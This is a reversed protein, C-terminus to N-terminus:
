RNGRLSKYMELCKDKTITRQADTLQPIVLHTGATLANPNSITKRNARYIYIWCHTNQYYKRALQSLTMDKVVNVEDLIGEVDASVTSRTNAVSSGAVQQRATQTAKHEHEDACDAKLQEFEARNVIRVEARRNPSYAAKSRKGVIKGRGCATIRDADIGYEEILENMVAEARAEGILNNVSESGTNDCYGYVVAYKQKEREMRTAVQQTTILGESSLSSKGTEFYVFYYDETPAVTATTQSKMVITDRHVVVVTDIRAVTSGNNTQAKAHKAENAALQKDLMRDSAINRVHTKHVADIKYRLNLTVDFIGDNNKSAVASLGQFGRGDIDDKVFYSYTGKVGLAISRSLNFEFNVGGMLYPRALYKDMSKPDTSGTHGRSDDTYYISNKFCGAGGGGLLQFGFIKREARPYFCNMLDVSLYGGAKHMMGKLLIDANDGANVDGTVRYMDFTYDLGLAIIPTFSYELNLGVAPAFVPHKMEANFDGDFSNFGANFILSWHSSETAIQSNEATKWPHAGKTNGSKTQAGAGMALVGLLTIILYKKYMFIHTRIM